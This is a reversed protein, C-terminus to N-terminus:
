GHRVFGTAWSGSIVLYGHGAKLAEARRADFWAAFAQHEQDGVLIGAIDAATGGEECLSDFLIFWAEFM